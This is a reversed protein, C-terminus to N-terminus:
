YMKLYISKWTSSFFQFAPVFIPPVKPFISWFPFFFLPCDNYFLHFFTRFDARLHALNSFLKTLRSVNKRQSINMIGFLLIRFDMNVTITYQSHLSHLSFLYSKTLYDSFVMTPFFRSRPVRSGM